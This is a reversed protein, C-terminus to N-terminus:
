NLYVKPANGAAPVTTNAAAPASVTTTNGPTPAPVVTTNSTVPVASTTTSSTAPFVPLPGPPPKGTLLANPNRELYDTLVQISQAAGAIQALTTDLEYRLASEPQVMQRLTILTRDVEALTVRARQATLQIETSLPQVQANINDSLQQFSGLTLNLQAIAEKLKPDGLVSNLNKLAEILEDNIDKFDIQGVGSNLQDLLQNVKTSIQKFDISSINELAQTVSKQMESLGSRLSPIEKYKPPQSIQIPKPPVTNALNDYYDFDVYLLGTLLSQLELKARLGSEVQAEFEQDNGLDVEVGLQNRLRAVDIEVIVPIYAVPDDPSQDYRIMINSVQGIQVGKFKVPSGITLGNVSDEFYIIFKEQKSFLKGSGFLLVAVVALVIAGSVFVGIATSSARASM